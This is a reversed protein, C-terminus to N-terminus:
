KQPLVNQAAPKARTRLFAHINRLDDDSLVKSSYPPMQNRPSRVFRTFAELAMPNPGLRPGTEPNGQAERGHCQYCGVRTYLQQGIHADGGLRDETRAPTQSADLTRSVLGLWSAAFVALVVGPRKAIGM